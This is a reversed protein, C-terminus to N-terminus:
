SDSKNLLKKEIDALLDILDAPGFLPGFCPSQDLPNSAGKLTHDFGIGRWFAPRKPEGSSLTFRNGHSSANRLHRFFEFEPSHDNSTKVSEYAANTLMACMSVLFTPMGLHGQCVQQFVDFPFLHKTEGVVASITVYQEPTLGMPNDNNFIAASSSIAILFAGVLDYFPEGKSFQVVSQRLM